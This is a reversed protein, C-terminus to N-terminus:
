PITPTTSRSAASTTSLPASRATTRVRRFCTSRTLVGPVTQRTLQLLSNYTRAENYGYYSLNTLEGSIGYAASVQQTGGQSMTSMRGNIDYGYTLSTGDPYTEGTLRGENDWTYTADFLVNAYGPQETIQQEVVRGAANYKYHYYFGPNYGFFVQGLRGAANASGFVNDSDYQFQWNATEHYVGNSIYGEREWTLRGYDDYTYRTYQNKTDTRQFVQHAGNYTYTVTGSEPTTASVMDLGSYQFARTQTGEPRTLTVNNM